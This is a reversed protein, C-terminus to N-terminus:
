FDCCVCQGFQDLIELCNNCIEDDSQGIEEEDYFDEADADIFVYNGDDFHKLEGNEKIIAM